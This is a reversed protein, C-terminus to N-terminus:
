SLSGHAGGVYVVVIGRPRVTPCGCQLHAEVWLRLTPVDDDANNCPFVSIQGRHNRDEVCVRARLLLEAEKKSLGHDKDKLFAFTWHVDRASFDQDSVQAILHRFAVCPTSFRTAWPSTHVAITVLVLVLHTELHELSQCVNSLPLVNRLCGLLDQLGSGHAFDNTTALVVKSARELKGAQNFGVLFAAPAPIENELKLGAAVLVFESPVLTHNFFQDLAIDELLNALILLSSSTGLELFSVGLRIQVRDLVLTFVIALITFEFDIVLLLVKVIIIFIIIVVFGPISIVSAVLHTELHDATHIIPILIVGMQGLNAAMGM